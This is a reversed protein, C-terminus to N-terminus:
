PLFEPAELVMRLPVLDSRSNPVEIGVYGKGPVPAEIRIAPRRWPWPWTTPWRKSAASGCAASCRRRRGARARALTGPKVGFQTVTPGVNIDVVEGARQLQGADARHGAKKYALDVAQRRTPPATRWVSTLPPCTRQGRSPSSRRWPRSAAHPLRRKIRTSARQSPLPHRTTTRFPQHHSGPQPRLDAALAPRHYPEPPEAPTDSSRGAAAPGPCRAAPRWGAGTWPLLELLACGAVRGAAGAGVAPSSAILDGLLLSPLTRDALRGARRGQRGHGHAAPRRQGVMPPELGTCRAAGPWASWAKGIRGRSRRPGMGAACGQRLVSCLGSLMLVIAMPWRPGASSSACCPPAIM